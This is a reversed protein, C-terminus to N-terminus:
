FVRWGFVQSKIKVKKMLKNSENKKFSLIILIIGFVFGIESLAPYNNAGGLLIIKLPIGTQWYVNLPYAVSLLLIVTGITRLGFIKM